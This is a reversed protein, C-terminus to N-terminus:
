QEYVILVKDSNAGTFYFKSLDYKTGPPAKLGLYSGAGITDFMAPAGATVGSDGASDLYGIYAPSANTTPAANTAVSRYGYFTASTFAFNTAVPRTYSGNTLTVLFFSNGKPEASSLKANLGVTQAGAPLALLLFLLVAGLVTPTPAPPPPTTELTQPGAEYDAATLRNNRRLRAFDEATPEWGPPKNAFIRWAEIAAFILTIIAQEM